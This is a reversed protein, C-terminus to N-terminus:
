DFKASILPLECFVTGILAFTAMFIVSISSSYHRNAAILPFSRRNASFQPFGIDLGGLEGMDLGGLEGM